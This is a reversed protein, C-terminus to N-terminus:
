AEQWPTKCKTDKLETNSRPFICVEALDDEVGSYFTKPGWLAATERNFASLIAVGSAESLAVYRQVQRPTPRAKGQVAKGQVAKPQGAKAQVPNAQGAKPQGAKTQVPSPQAAKPQGAKPQGAKPEGAKPQGAKPQGAKPQGAKSQPANSKPRGAPAEESAEGPNAALLQINGTALPSIPKLQIRNLLVYRDFQEVVFDLVKALRVPLETKTYAQVSPNKRLTALEAKGKAGARKALEADYRRLDINQQLMSMTRTGYRQFLDRGREDLAATDLRKQSLCGADASEIVANTFEAILARGYPHDLAERVFEPASELALPLQARAPQLASPGVLGAVAAVISALRLM